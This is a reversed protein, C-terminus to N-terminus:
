VVTTETKGPRADIGLADYIVQQRPEARTARRVHITRGIINGLAAAKQPGNFGLEQLKRDLRLQGISQLAV